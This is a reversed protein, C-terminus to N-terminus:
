RLRPDDNKIKNRFIDIAFLGDAGMGAGEIQSFAKRADSDRKLRRTYYISKDVPESSIFVLADFARKSKLFVQEGLNGLRLARELWKVSLTGELFSKAISFYSDDARYGRIIDIGSLDPLFESLIYEKIKRTIDHPTDFVRNAMLVAIWNLVHYSRGSLDCVELNYSPEFSYHNVFASPEKSCAWEKALEIDPTCYFGQGFDNHIRGGAKTPNDIVKDSGHFLIRQM